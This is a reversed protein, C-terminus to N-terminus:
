KITQYYQHFYEAIKSGIDQSCKGEGIAMVFRQKTDKERKSRLSKLTKECKSQFDKTCGANSM